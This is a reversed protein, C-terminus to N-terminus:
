AYRMKVASDSLHRRPRSRPATTPPSLKGCGRAPACAMSAPDGNFFMVWLLVTAFVFFLGSSWLLAFRHSNTRGYSDFAAMRLLDLDSIEAMIKERAAADAGRSKEELRKQDTEIQLGTWLNRLGSLRRITTLGAVISGAIFLGGCAEVAWAMAAANIHFLGVITSIALFGAGNLSMLLKANAEISEDINKALEERQRREEFDQASSMATPDRLSLM